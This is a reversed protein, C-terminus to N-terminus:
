DLIHIDVTKRGWEQAESESMNLDIIGGKINGGTDAAIAEGYGEVYVRSGLPIVDPDVAIIKDNPSTIRYGSATLGGSSAGNYAMAEVTITKGSKNSLDFKSEEERLEDESLGIDTEEVELGDYVNDREEYSETSSSESSKSTRKAKKLDKSLKDITHESATKSKEFAETESKLQKELDTVKDKTLKLESKLEVNNKKVSKAEISNIVLPSIGVTVLLVIAGRKILQKTEM